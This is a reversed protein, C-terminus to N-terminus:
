TDPQEDEDGHAACGDSTCNWHDKTHQAAFWVWAGAGTLWAVVLSAGFPGHEVALARWAPGYLLAALLAVVTIVVAFILGLVVGVAAAIVRDQTTAKM